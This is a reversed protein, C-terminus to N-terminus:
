LSIKSDKKSDCYKKLCHKYDTIHNSSISNLTKKSYLEDVYNNWLPMNCTYTDDNNKKCLCNNTDANQKNNEIKVTCVNNGNNILKIKEDCKQKKGRGGSCNGAPRPQKNYYYYAKKTSVQPIFENCFVNDNGSKYYKEYKNENNKKFKNSTKCKQSTENPKQSTENPTQSTENPTQPPSIADNM